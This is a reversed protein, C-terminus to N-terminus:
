CVVGLPTGGFTPVNFMGVGLSHRWLTTRQVCWGWPFAELPQTTSRGLGEGQHQKFTVQILLAPAHRWSAVGRELQLFFRRSIMRIERCPRASHQFPLAQLSFFFCFAAEEALFDLFRGSWGM